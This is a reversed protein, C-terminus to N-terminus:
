GKGVKTKRFESQKIQHKKLKDYLTKRPIKLASACKDVSGNQLALEQEIMKKEFANVIRHLSKESSDVKSIVTQSQDFVSSFGALAVREAVNQLERVNGPWDRMILKGVMDATLMPIPREYRTCAERIFIKFLIPIDQTRERLPAIHIPIVNLRYYLDERFAGSDCKEKLQTQTAAIVRVDIPIPENSGLREITREQLVRLLKVQQALPMSDVEDLFLTGGDAYQIKGIRQKVAGTFAGSEHGFLESDFITEPIAGCNLAVFRNQNRESQNHICRAVLEKGTGTEGTILVNASSQALNAIQQRLNIIALSEGKLADNDPSLAIIRSRLELNELFLFRKELARRVSTVFEAAEFPKEIFDYAGDRMAQVATQIDGHGTVMIIPLDPDVAVIKRLIDLGNMEPMSMDTVLIVADHQHIKQLVESPSAFCKVHIKENQLIRDVAYRMNPEDDLFYVVGNKMGSLGKLSQSTRTPKTPFNGVSSQHLM